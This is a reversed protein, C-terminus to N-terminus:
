NKATLRNDRGNDRVVKLTDRLARLHDKDDVGAALIDDHINRVGNLTALKKQLEEQFM